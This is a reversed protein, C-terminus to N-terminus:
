KDAYEGFQLKQSRRDFPRFMCVKTAYSELVIDHMDCRLGNKLHTRSLKESFFSMSTNAFLSALCAVHFVPIVSQSLWINAM